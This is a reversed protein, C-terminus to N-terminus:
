RSFGRCRCVGLTLISTIQSEQTPAYACMCGCMRVHVWLGCMCLHVGVCAHGVTGCMCGCQTPAHTCMRINISTHPTPPLVFPPSCTHSNSTLSCALCTALCLDLCTALFSGLCAPLYPRLCAPLCAPLSAPLCATAPLDPLCTLICVPLCAKECMM